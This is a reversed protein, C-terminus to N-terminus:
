GWPHASRWADVWYPDPRRSGPKLRASELHVRSLIWGRLYSGVDDIRDGWETVSLTVEDDGIRVRVSYPQISDDRHWPTSEVPRTGSLTLRYGILVSSVAQELKEAALHTSYADGLHTTVPHPECM